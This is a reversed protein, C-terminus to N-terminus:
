LDVSYPKLLKKDRFLADETEQLIKISHDAISEIMNGTLAKVGCSKIEEPSVFLYDNSETQMLKRMVDEQEQTPKLEVIDALLLEYCNFVRSYQIKTFHRGCYRYELHSFDLIGTKILEEKFERGLNDLCEREVANSFRRVFKKLYKVPVYLRYDNKSEKDIPIKNDGAVHFYESIYNREHEYFKFAGGVPQYKGTGRANKVLLYKGDIIIRFLYAFSIRIIDDSAIVKGRILKRLSTQWPYIDTCDQISKYLRPALLGLIVGGISSVGSVTNKEGLIMIIGIGVIGIFCLIAITVKKAMKKTVELIFEKEM